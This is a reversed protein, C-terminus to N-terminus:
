LRRLAGAKWFVAMSLLALLAGFGALTVAPGFAKVLFGAALSGLPGGGRFALGFISLVRGRFADPVNEQVLANVTSLASVMAFGMLSLLGATLIRDRSLVALTGALGCTVFAFLARRGRGASYGQHATAIAGAIAGGGFCAMLLGFGSAGAGLRSAVVPLFTIFPFALFSGLGGLLVLVRLLASTTVHDWGLAVSRLVGETTPGASPSLELGAIALIVAAYSLANVGFCVGAGGVALLGAALAPGVARSLNFQLSNLAVASQIHAKPVLSTLTAQYTPASQSQAVGTVFALGLIAAIGLHGAAYLIALVVAGAMQVSQSALLIRRRDGRDAHAGGLLMFALLPVEAAFSRYGLYRPDGFQQHILWALAM